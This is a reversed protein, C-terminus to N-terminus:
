CGIGFWARVEANGDFLVGGLGGSKTTPEYAADTFIHWCSTAKSSVVRLGGTNLRVLMAQLSPVLDEELRATRGYAHESLKKLVLAGLRGHM